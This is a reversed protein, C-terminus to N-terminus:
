ELRRHPGNVGNSSTRDAFGAAPSPLPECVDRLDIRLTIEKALYARVAANVKAPHRM